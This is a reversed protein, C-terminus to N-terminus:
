NKIKNIRLEMVFGGRPLLEIQNFLDAPTSVIHEFTWPKEKSGGDKFILIDYEGDALFSWDLKITNNEDKGNIGAVYWKEGSRRAMVVHNAPYGTVLKTDDWTTPLNSLFNQVVEPQSLYSEPRDALHQLASEFLVPLALEHGNSTIHPHQSDSFTCPTYDMPGIVNRTFPLTANHAAARPTLVPANNYWEAGYVAEVTMMHPYTRQWGRPIAAGHFNVMLKHKAACELLDIYYEMTEQLDGAFFDIKVGVVGIEELWAFEKDRKAPDNLRQHPGPAGWEKIWATSSNYWILPKVGCEKAYNIADEITGGNSMEDWEADILVYPLTLEAAMDIYKKVIQYDKSGHNYAWYIWSVSGPQIWDTDSLRSAPSLDTIVTSEVIDALSGIMVVRWPSFWDGSVAKENKDLTVKYDTVNMDNKLFSASHMKEIGAESILTYLQSEMEILAPYGWKRKKDEGTTTLPYFKEYGPDYTQIWRNKGEPIRFVTLEDKILTEEMDSMEYRFAVGDDFLRFIIKTEKNLSDSFTYTYENADYQCEKKKGSIMTYEEHIQLRHSVGKLKLNKGRGSETLVGVASLNLAVTEHNNDAYIVRFSPSADVNETFELTLKGNPSQTKNIQMCSCVGICFLLGIFFRYMKM